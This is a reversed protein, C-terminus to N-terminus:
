DLGLEQRLMADKNQNKQWYTSKITNILTATSTMKQRGAGFGSYATEEWGLIKYPFETEYYIKLTRDLEPYSATYIKTDDHTDISLNCTYAKLDVHSLRLRSFAPVVKQTGLPLAAPDVRIISYFDDELWAKDLSTEKSEGEFYSSVKVEMKKGNRLEMYSHGCWEQTSSTIKLSHKPSEVPLFTSTMISYPYVGTNFKTTTNLKLVPVQDKRYADPKTGLEPSHSESVFVMVSKGTRLEGYRAISHSYSSIEGTNDYWYNNFAESVSQSPASHPLCSVLILFSLYVLKNM